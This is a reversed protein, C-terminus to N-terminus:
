ASVVTSPRRFGIYRKPKSFAQKPQQVSGPIGRGALERGQQARVPTVARSVAGSPVAGSLTDPLSIASRTM